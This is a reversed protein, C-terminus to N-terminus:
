WIYFRYSIPREQIVCSNLAICPSGPPTIPNPAPPNLPSPGYTYKHGSECQISSALVVSYLM